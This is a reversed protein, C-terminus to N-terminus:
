IVDGTSEEEDKIYSESKEKKKKKKNVGKSMLCRVEYDVTKMLEEIVTDCEEITERTAYYSITDTLLESLSSNRFIVETEVKRRFTIGENDKVKQVLVDFVENTRYEPKDVGGMTSFKYEKGESEVKYNMTIRRGNVDEDLSVIKYPPVYTHKIRVRYIDKVFIFEAYKSSKLIGKEVNFKTYKSM